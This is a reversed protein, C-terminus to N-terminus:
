ALVEELGAQLLRHFTSRPDGALATREGQELLRGDELIAIEDARHVTSLRHAIIIATRGRLLRDVACEVLRDTAPDLRSSAEDLIVLGPDFLFVRAFALLEAQGASLGGGGALLETDLRAPLRELWGSLGLNSLTSVIQEDSIHPNFLTVNDRVTAQFLQVDQTVMGVRDRLDRLRAATTAVGGLRIEGGTPDYLRLLLRALTTKGSGTRGLLGLVRGPRLRLSIDQLVTEGEDYGFSVECLDVSLPGRPLLDGAGDRLRSSTSSLARVRAISAEAQQLDAIQARIQALPYFLLDTYRVILYVTGITIAGRHWLHAGLLFAFANGLAYMGIGVAWAANRAMGAKIQIRLWRRMIEYFRRMVYSQAGNARVEETGALREGLFGYFDASQQRVQVWYPVAIARVRFMAFLSL